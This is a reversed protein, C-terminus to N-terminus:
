YFFLSFLSFEEISFQLYDILKNVQSTSNCKLIKKMTFLPFNLFYYGPIKGKKLNEGVVKKTRNKM